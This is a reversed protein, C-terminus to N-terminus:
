QSARGNARGNGAAASATEVPRSAVREGESLGSTVIAMLGNNRGVSVERRQPRGDREVWLYSRGGATEIAALPVALVNQFHDIEVELRAAMGPRMRQPDVTELKVTFSLSKIPRDQPGATLSDAIQTIRGRFVKEPIGDFSVAVPLGVRIKNSDVEAVQGRVVLTTLDPLSIITDMMFVDSGVQKKENNWDSKHIVVGGIPAAVELAALAAQYSQVREQHFRQKDQLLGLELRANERVAALKKGLMASRAKALELEYEAEQVKISSEFERVDLLKSQARVEQTKAEELELELDKVASERTSGTRLIEQRAKDLEATEDRLYRFIESPDFQVLFDGPRVQIGEEAWRIIKFRRVRPLAPPGIDVAKEAIVQGSGAVTFAFDDRKVSLWEVAADASAGAAGAAPLVDEGARIDGRVAAETANADLVEVPVRRPPDGPRLLFAEGRSDIHVAARPVVLTGARTVPVRIRATMGPKMVAPDPRELAIKMRFSRLQSRFHRTSAADSLQAVRGRFTRDPIADLVIEAPLDLALQLLDTDYVRADVQLTDLDPLQLAASGEFIKDGVQYKRSSEWNDAVQVLGDVPATITMADIEAQIKRLEIDAQDFQLRVVALEAASTRALNGLREEVKALALRAKELNYQYTEYDARPLLDSDLRAYLEAVKVNKVAAAQELLLDQRRSELDAEKQAVQVRAEERKKELDLRDLELSSTDFRVLVDGRRVSAGDPVISSITMGWIRSAPAHVTISRSTELEGTFTLPKVFDRSAVVYTRRAPAAAAAVALMVALLIAAHRATRSRGAPRRLGSEQIRITNM